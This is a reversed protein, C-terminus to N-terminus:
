KTLKKAMASLKYFTDYVFKTGDICFAAKTAVTEGYASEQSSFKNTDSQALVGLMEENEEIMSITGPNKEITTLLRYQAYSGNSFVANFCNADDPCFYDTALVPADKGGANSYIAFGQTDYTKPKIVQMFVLEDTFPVAYDDYFLELKTRVKLTRTGWNQNSAPSIIIGNFTSEINPISTEYRNRWPYKIELNATTFNLEMGDPTMYTTPGTKYAISRQLYHRLQVSADEYIEVTVKTLYRRIDNPVVLGLRHLIDDSFGFYDYNINIISQMREEVICTLNNGYYDNFYDRLKAVFSYGLGNFSPIATTFEESIFSNVHDGELDYAISIFRYTAGLTILDKDIYFSGKYTTGSDITLATSPKRIKNDITGSGADTTIHAFSAEYNTKFDVINDNKDTRIMWAIFNTPVTASDIYFDLKTNELTNLTSRGGATDSLAWIPNTFYPTTEHHNKNYFGAKYFATTVIFFSKKTNDVLDVQYIYFRPFQEPNTYVSTGSVDLELTSGIKDKLLKDHNIQSVTSLYGNRDENQFYKITIKFDNGYGIHIQVDWNKALDTTFPTNVFPTMAFDGVTAAPDVVYSYGEVPLSGTTFPVVVPSICLAPNFYIITNALDQTSTFDLVFKKYEGIRNLKWDDPYILENLETGNPLLTYLKRSTCTIVGM